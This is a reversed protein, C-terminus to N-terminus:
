PNFGRAAPDFSSITAPDFWADANTQGKSRDGKLNGLGPVYLQDMFLHPAEGRPIVYRGGAVTVTRGPGAYAALIVGKRLRARVLIDADSWEPPLALQNRAIEILRAGAARARSLLLVMRDGEMWWPSNLLTRLQAMDGRLYRKAAFRFMLNDNALEVRRMAVLGGNRDYIGRPNRQGVNPNDDAILVPTGDHGFQYGEAEAKCWSDLWWTENAAAPM